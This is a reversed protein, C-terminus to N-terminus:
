SYGATSGGSRAPTRMSTIVAATGSGALQASISPPAAPSAQIRRRRGAAEAQIRCHRLVGAAVLNSLNTFYNLASYGASLHLVLQQGIAALTQLALTTRALTLM